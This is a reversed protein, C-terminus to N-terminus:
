EVYSYLVQVVTSGRYLFPIALDRGALRKYFIKVSNLVLVKAVTCEGLFRMDSKQLIRWLVVTLETAAEM